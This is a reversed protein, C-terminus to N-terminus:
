SRALLREWKKWEEELVKSSYEKISGLCPNKGFVEPSFLSAKYGYFLWKFVNFKEIFEWEGKNEKLFELVRKYRGGWVEIASEKTADKEPFAYARDMRIRLYELFAIAKKIDQFTYVDLFDSPVIDELEEFIKEMRDKGSPLAKTKEIYRGIQKRLNERKEILEWVKYLVNQAKWFLNKRGEELRNKLNGYNVSSIPVVSPIEFVTVIIFIKLKENLEVMGGKGVMFFSAQHLRPPIAWSVSMKQIYDKLSEMILRVLGYRTARQAEPLDKFLKLAVGNKGEDVFGPYAYLTEFSPERTIKIKDPIPELPIERIGRKEWKLKADEWMRDQYDRPVEEVIRAIDRGSALKEGKSGVVEIRFVLHPPLNIGKWKEPEIEIGKVEKLARELSGLFDENPLAEKYSLREVVKKITEGMPVLNKRIDKPLGKLLYQVKEELYGPVPWELIGLFYARKIFDLANVPVVITVGDEEQGPGFHYILSFETGLIYIRGPFLIDLDESIIERLIDEETMYLLSSNEPLSRLFREFSKLNWIGEPIRSNYFEFIKGEDIFFHPKRIKKEGEQIEELLRKNHVLFPYSKGLKDGVLAERIFIERAEKPNIRGYAVPRGEVITLGHFSVKEYAVVNGLKEDWHPNSYSYSCLHKAVDEIWLPDIEAVNRAFIKSTEVIESAMIWPPNRKVFSGPFIFIEKDKAGKYIGRGQHMAVLSGAGCVFGALLSCHIDEYSPATDSLELEGMEELIEVLEEYVSIWEQITRYSLYNEKCWKSLKSKGQNQERHYAKWISLFSVFDSRGDAFLMHARSALEEEGHPRERPDQVSLLSVIILVERLAKRKKAEIIIRSLKPDLPLRAMKRGIPTLNNRDDIAGLQRLILFAERLSARSPPDLFHFNEVDSFGLYLLKLVVESLNSRKIEPPTFDQRSEYDEESYLRICVGPGVRGCRGKRQEASAKSIPLIPLSKIGSRPSYHAIRALGTDVVYSINPITISTEAVNTAVIVKRHHTPKFVREQEWVPQRAYLPYVKVNGLDRESLRQVAEKIDKETPMFVLVDGGLFALNKNYFLEEVAEVAQDVYNFGEEEREPDIPKYIVEVPYLRSAIEIVPVAEGLSASFAKSFKQPDITASSIIVTLDKRVSLIRILLGLILDINLSREHAEDVIIVEYSRLLRDKQAEALLVGDTVFKIITEKRVRDQFRIKYGVLLHGEPGLERAVQRALTIAAIRRPQTCGIFGKKGKGAEICFKPIQTSKGSGTSGAIVLVRHRKIAEVIEDKRSLIPFDLPYTIKFM